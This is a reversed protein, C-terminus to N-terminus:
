AGTTGLRAPLGSRSDDDLLRGVLSGFAVGIIAWMVLQAGLSYLRFDYLVDAPFGEPTEAVPTLLLMVVSIITVYAAAALLTASWAGFRKELRRGLWIAGAASGLSLLVMLLYLGTREGITEPRGISPPNAPYKLFPVLCAAGFGGAALWLSLARPRVGLRGYAVIFAVAFLAGLAVSFALVGFGMGVNAQVGRTFLEIGQHHGAANRADEFDIARGIAPEVFVRAFLIGIVGAVAGAIVGRGIVRKEVRDTAPSASCTGLTTCSSTCM